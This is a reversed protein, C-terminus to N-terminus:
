LRVVIDQFAKSCEQRVIGCGVSALRVGGCGYLVGCLQVGCKRSWMRHRRVNGNGCQSKSSAASVGCFWVHGYKVTDLGPRVM